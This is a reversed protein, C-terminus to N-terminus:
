QTIGNWIMQFNEQIVQKKLPLYKQIIANALTGVTGYIFSILVPADTQRFIGEAIGRSILDYLPKNQLNFHQLQEEYNLQLYGSRTYQDTFVTEDHHKLKFRLMRFLLNNTVHRIPLSLDLGEYVEVFFQDGASAYAAQIVEEKNKFYTYMAGVSLGTEKTLGLISIGALGQRGVITYVAQIIEERKLPDQLRM